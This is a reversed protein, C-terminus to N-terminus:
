KKRDGMTREFCWIVDIEPIGERLKEIIVDLDTKSHIKKRLFDPLTYVVVDDEDVISLRKNKKVVKM